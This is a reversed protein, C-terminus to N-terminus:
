PFTECFSYNHIVHILKHILRDQFLSKRAFLPFVPPYRPYVATFLAYAEHIFRFAPSFRRRSFFLNKMRKQKIFIRRKYLIPLSRFINGFGKYYTSSM